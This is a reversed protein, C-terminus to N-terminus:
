DQRLAVMPDVSAARRAPVLCALLAAVLLTGAVLSFSVPDMASIDYLMGKMATGVFYAGGAGLVTGIAATIMGEKLVQGLVRGRGAGLAMRLGIEHTRQAVVFSMVGYIGFAALLLALASFGTFLATNFRDNRMSDSVLQDMTKIDSMPLDPDIAKIVAAVSKTMTLPDGATRMAVSADPWPSQWFPVDIEPFGTGQPGGNRVQAYVGVIQWEQEPGLKTVGPILEEVLIRQTLPDVDKMYRNVFVDNVIAVRLGGARDAETFARGKQITIGFTKYYDPSVQNFGAGPRKSQDTVPKGVITFPMGFNTGNVPMGTSVSMSEVGPVARVRELLQQYFVNVQDSTTLKKDPVPLGFTLLRETRFGLNTNSLTILTRIALGGGALLTLALAFEIVVLARRLRHRGDSMSRGSEKLVDNMNARAAQWAPFCGFLIGSIMCAGLTFLMVPINLRVDAESPLTFDPMIALIGQMLAAALAVGLAGGLLALVLSETVLQRVIEWRSAGLSSRIAV